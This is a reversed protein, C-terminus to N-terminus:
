GEKEDDIKLCQRIDEMLEEYRPSSLNGGARLISLGSIDKVVTSLFDLLDKEETACCFMDKHRATDIGEFTLNLAKKQENRSIWRRWYTCDLRDAYELCSDTEKCYQNLPCQACPPSRREYHKRKLNCSQRYIIQYLFNKLTSRGDYKDLKAIAWIYAEQKLDEIEFPGFRFKYGISDVIEDVLQPIQEKM